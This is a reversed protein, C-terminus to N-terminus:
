GGTLLTQRKCFGRVLKLTWSTIGVSIRMMIQKVQIVYPHYFTFLGGHNNVSDAPVSFIGKGIIGRDAHTDSDENTPSLGDWNQGAAMNQEYLVPTTGGVIRRSM